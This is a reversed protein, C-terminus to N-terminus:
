SVIESKIGISFFPWVALGKLLFMPLSQTVCKILLVKNKFVAARKDRLHYVINLTFQKWKTMIGALWSFDEEVTLDLEM